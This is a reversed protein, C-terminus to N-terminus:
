KETKLTWKNKLDYKTKRTGIFIPPVSIGILISEFVAWEKIGESGKDIATVPLLVVGM